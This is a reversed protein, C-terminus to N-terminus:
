GAERDPRQVSRCGARRSFIFFTLFYNKPTPTQKAATAASHRSTTGPEAAASADSEVAPADAEELEELLDDDSDDDSDASPARKLKVQSGAITQVMIIPKESLNKSSLEMLFQLQIRSAIVSITAVETLVVLDPHIKNDLKNQPINQVAVVRAALPAAGKADAEPQRIQFLPLPTDRTIGEDPNDFYSHKWNTCRLKGDKTFLLNLNMADFFEDGLPRAAQASM